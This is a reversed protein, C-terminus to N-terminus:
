RRASPVPTTPRHAAVPPHSRLSPGVLCVRDEPSAGVLAATTFVATGRPSLVDSVRFEASLGHAAFLAQRASELARTSRVLESDWEPPVVTRM